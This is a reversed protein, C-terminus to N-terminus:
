LGFHWTNSTTGLGSPRHRLPHVPVCTEQEEEKALGGHYVGLVVRIGLVWDESVARVEYLGEGYLDEECSDSEGESSYEQEVEDECCLVVPGESACIIDELYCADDGEEYGDTCRDIGDKVSCHLLALMPGVHEAIEGDLYGNVIGGCIRGVGGEEVELRPSGWLSGGPDDQVGRGGDDDLDTRGM